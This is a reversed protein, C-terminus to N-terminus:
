CLWLRFNVKRKADVKTNPSVTYKISARSTGALENFCFELLTCFIREHKKVKGLLMTLNEDSVLIIRREIEDKMSYLLNISAITQDFRGGLAPTAM